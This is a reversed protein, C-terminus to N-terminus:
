NTMTFEKQRKRTVIDYIEGLSKDPAAAILTEKDLNIIFEESKLRNM